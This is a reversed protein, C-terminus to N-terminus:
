MVSGPTTTLIRECRPREVSTGAGEGALREGPNSSGARSSSINPSDGHSMTSSSAKSERVRAGGQRRHQVFPRAARPPFELIRDMSAWPDDRGDVPGASSTCSATAGSGGWGMKEEIAYSRVWGM